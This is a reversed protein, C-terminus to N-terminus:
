PLILHKISALFRRRFVVRFDYSLAKCLYKITKGKQRKSLALILTLLTYHNSFHYGIRDRYASCFLDDMKLHEILIETSTVLLEPNINLLSRSKHHFVTSTVTNDVCINYRVVLRLWVYWDESVIAYRSHIFKFENAVERRVFIANGHLVNEEILKEKIREDLNNRILITEHKEDVIEYGLHGIPPFSNRLLLKHAVELHNPYVRDDSDLFGIYKGKALSIGFNRAISREENEKYYYKIRPDSSIMSSIADKTGDSSGDDVVIIEFDSFRQLLLSNLAIPLFKKRNYTPVVISFFPQRQREAIM